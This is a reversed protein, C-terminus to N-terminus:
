KHLITKKPQKNLAEDEERTQEKLEIKKKMRKNRTLDLDM